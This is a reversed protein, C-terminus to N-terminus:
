GGATGSRTAGLFFWWDFARVYIPTRPPLIHERVTPTSLFGLHIRRDRDGPAAPLKYERSM